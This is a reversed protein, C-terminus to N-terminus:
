AAVAPIAAEVATGLGPISVDCIMRNLALAYEQALFDVALADFDLRVRNGGEVAIREPALHCGDILIVHGLRRDECLARDHTRIGVSRSVGLQHRRSSGIGFVALHPDANSKVGLRRGLNVGGLAGYTDFGM